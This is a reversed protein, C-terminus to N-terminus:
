PRVREQEAPAAFGGVNGNPCDKEDKAELTPLGTCAELAAIDGDANSRAMRALHETVVVAILADRTEAKPLRGMKMDGISDILIHSFSELSCAPEGRAQECKTTTGPTGLLVRELDDQKPPRDSDAIKKNTDRWLARAWDPTTETWLLQGLADLCSRMNASDRVSKTIYLEFLM